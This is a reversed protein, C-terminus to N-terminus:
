AQSQKQTMSASRDPVSLSMTIRTNLAAIARPIDEPLRATLARRQNVLTGPQNSLVQTPSGINLTTWSIKDLCGSACCFSLDM